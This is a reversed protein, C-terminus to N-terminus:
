GAMHAGFAMCAACLFFLGSLIVLAAVARTRYEDERRWARKCRRHYDQARRNREELETRSM